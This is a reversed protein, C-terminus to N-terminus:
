IATFSAFGHITLFSHGLHKRILYGIVLSIKLWLVSVVSFPQIADTVSSYICPQITTTKPKTGLYAM